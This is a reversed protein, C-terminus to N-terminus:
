QNRNGTSLSFSAVLAQAPMEVGLAELLELQQHSTQSPPHLTTRRKNGSAKLWMRIVRHLALALFCILAHV